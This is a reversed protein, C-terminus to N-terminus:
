RKQFSWGVKLGKSAGCPEPRVTKYLDKTGSQGGSSRRTGEMFLALRKLRALRSIEGKERFYKTGHVIKFKDKVQLYNISRAALFDSIKQEDSNKPVSIARPPPPAKPTPRPSARLQEHSYGGSENCHFCNYIVTEPTLEVSLTRDSKKKRSSSCLPCLYRNSNQVTALFEKMTTSM